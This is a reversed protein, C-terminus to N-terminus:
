STKKLAKESEHKDAGQAVLLTLALLIVLFSDQMNHQLITMIGFLSIPGAAMLPMADSVLFVAMWYVAASSQLMLTCYVVVLARTMALPGLHAKWSVVLGMLLVLVEISGRIWLSAVLSEFFALLMLLLATVLALATQMGVAIMQRGVLLSKHRRGSSACLLAARSAFGRWMAVAHVLLVGAWVAREQGHGLVLVM